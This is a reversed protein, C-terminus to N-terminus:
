HSSGAVQQGAPEEVGRAAVIWSKLLKNLAAAGVVPEAPRELEAPFLVFPETQPGGLGGHSGVLEEFAAVQQTSQDFCSMVFIDPANSFGNSRRLHAAANSDFLALPNEGVAYDHDLYYVGQPGIILGGDAESQVLVFSVGPHQTLGPILLPFADVLQEYTMREKWNTFSILGLNGSALVVVDKQKQRAEEPEPPLQGAPGLHLEGSRMRGQLTRRALRATRNDIKIAEGIAVNLNGWEEEFQTENAFSLQAPTLEDVLQVLSKDYRQRFTAGLSQGHDSLVILKYPRPADQIAKELVALLRDITTLVKFADLRDIGSHHAVEDYSFLTCYVAPMGRFIDSLLMFLAAEQMLTTTSSRIFAYKVPRHIRPREDRRRQQWAQFIERAVDAVFLTLTRSLTYPNTFYALYSKSGKRGRQGFTSFTVVADAADGSFVNWRSGGDPALLGNGTSLRSELVRATDRRSSVMLRNSSKDFWRFAPIDTNDGLLIGAQSASTQSSLDPEWELLRHSGGELWRSVTPMFGGDVAQKLVPLALGDIEVFLFGPTESYTAEHHYAKRLPRVVFRDYSVDDYVYVITSILTNGATVGLAFLIGTGLGQLYFDGDSLTTILGASILMVFGTLVFCAIPFLIPHFKASVEYIYPWAVVNVLSVVIAATFAAWYGDIALGPLLWALFLIWFADFFSVVILWRLFRRM